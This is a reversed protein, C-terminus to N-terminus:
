ALLATDLSEPLQKKLASRARALRVGVTGVPVRLVDAIEKYSLEEFYYLALIERQAAPLATLGKELLVRIETNEKEKGFPEDQSAYAPHSIIKDFDFGYVPQRTKQRLLDVFTNHAIRYMWPSFRQKTDFGEIHQYASIFADQVGERIADDNQVGLFRHGYRLLKEEYRSMLEALAADDGAQVKAALVEDTEEAFNESM